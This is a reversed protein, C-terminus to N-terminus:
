LVSRPIPGPVASNPIPGRFKGFKGLISTQTSSFARFHVITYLFDALFKDHHLLFQSPFYLNNYLFDAFGLGRFAAGRKPSGYQPLM